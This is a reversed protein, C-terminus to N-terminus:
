QIYQQKSSSAVLWEFFNKAAVPAGEKYKAPGKEMVIVFAYRPNEYPFFGEVLSNVYQKKTGLEATGTKGAIHIGPINLATLTGQTVAQRMGERVIQYYSDPINSIKRDISITTTPTTKIITPNILTGSNTLAAVARLAQFPTVQFGFQGISTNYTDGVRWQDNDFVKKKWEPNPIVGDKSAFFSDKVGTGFGFLEMYKNINDIGIGRQDQFGGGVEYFYVDSSVAIAQRIDTWGNARWDHFVSTKDKFYPNPISISGTSLIQKEPTIVKENLAALAMFPKVISGPTYLGSLVRNMYPNSSNSSYSDIVASDDGNALVQSSYEPYTTMALIEGTQTDMIAGSGGVFGSTEATAKINRYLAMQLDQDISLAINTGHQPPVLVGQSVVGGKANTEVVKEGNIGKLMGDFYEEVGDHGTVETKFYFGNKDKKPYRVFGLLNSFGETELYKRKVYVDDSSENEVNWALPIGNRDSIVGRDAFVFTSRLSNQESRNKYGEGNAIQLNWARWTFFAGIVCFVLSLLLVAQRGIPKELRGEFQHTDLEPLNHADLLIEDPDIEGYNRQM